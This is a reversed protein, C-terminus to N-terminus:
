AWFDQGINRYGQEMNCSQFTPPLITLSVDLVPRCNIIKAILVLVKLSIIPSQGLRRTFGNVAGWNFVLFLFMMGAVKICNLNKVWDKNCKGSFFDRRSCSSFGIDIDSIFDEKNFFILMHWHLAIGQVSNTEKQFKM